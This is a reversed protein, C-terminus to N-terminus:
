PLGSAILRAPESNPYVQLLQRWDSAILLQYRMRSLSEQRRQASAGPQRAATVTVGAMDGPNGPYRDLAGSGLALRLCQRLTPAVLLHWHILSARYKDIVEVGVSVTVAM